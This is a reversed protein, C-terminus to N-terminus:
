CPCATLHCGCKGCHFPRTGQLVRGLNESATWADAVAKRSGTGNIMKTMASKHTRRANNRATRIETATMMTTTTM